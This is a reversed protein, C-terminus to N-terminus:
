WFKQMSHLWLTWKCEGWLIAATNTSRRFQARRSSLWLRHCFHKLWFLFDSHHNVKIKTKTKISISFHNQSFPPTSSSFSWPIHRCNGNASTIHFLSCIAWEQPFNTISQKSKLKLIKQTQLNISSTPIPNINIQWTLLQQPFYYSFLINPAWNWLYIKIENSMQYLFLPFFFKLESQSKKAKLM